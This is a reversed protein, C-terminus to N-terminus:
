SHRYLLHRTEIKNWNREAENENYNPELETGNGNTKRELGLIIHIIQSLINLRTIENFYIPLMIKFNKFIHFVFNQPSFIFCFSVHPYFFTVFQFTTSQIIILHCCWFNGFIFCNYNFYVSKWFTYFGYFFNLVSRHSSICM